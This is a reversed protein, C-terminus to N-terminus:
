SEASIWFIFSGLVNIFGVQNNMNMNLPIIHENLDLRISKIELKNSSPNKTPM